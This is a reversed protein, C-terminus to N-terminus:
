AKDFFIFQHTVSLAQDDSLYTKYLSVVFSDSANSPAYFKKVMMAISEPFGVLIYFKKLNPAVTNIYM